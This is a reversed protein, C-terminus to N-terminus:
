NEKLLECIKPSIEDLGIVLSVGGKKVAMQPMGYITCSAEDQALTVAGTDYLQKLGQAGDSGMGTMIVGLVNTGCVTAASRFLYDVAPRCHNEPPADDVKSYLQGGKLQLGMQMQGPAFYVHGPLLRQNDSAVEVSVKSKKNLSNALSVIFLTPMHQVIVVPVPLNEPLNPIVKVLANPGGTSVGICILKIQSKVVISRNTALSSDIKLLRSSVVPKKEDLNKHLISLLPTLQDVLLRESEHRDKGEPKTIFDYAGLELAQITVAAGDTTFSSCMIVTPANKVQSLERMVAIGDMIPMEVDLIVVDPCDAAICALVKKGDAASGSVVLWDFSRLIKKLLARYVLSDDGILVKLKRM